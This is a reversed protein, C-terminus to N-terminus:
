SHWSAGRVVCAAAQVLTTAPRVVAAAYFDAIAELSAASFGAYHGAQGTCGLLEDFQPQM